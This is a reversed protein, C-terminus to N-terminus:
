TVAPQTFIRRFPNAEAPYQKRLRKLENGIGRVNIGSPESNAPAKGAAFKHLATPTHRSM